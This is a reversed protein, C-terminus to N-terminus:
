GQIFYIGSLYNPCDDDSSTSSSQSSEINKTKLRRRDKYSNNCVDSLDSIWEAKNAKSKAEIFSVLSFLINM